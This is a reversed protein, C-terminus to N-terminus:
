YPYEGIYNGGPNYNAVVILNGNACRAMGAGVATTNKWIMQTYHGTAYWNSNSIKTYTYKEKEAYWAQSASLPTFDVANSAMYINEGYPSNQRHKFTCNQSHALSDAWAQAYAALRSSWVLPPVNVEARAKNHHALLQRAQQNSVASGTTDTTQQGFCVASSILLLFLIQKRM